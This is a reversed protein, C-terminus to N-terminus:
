YALLSRQLSLEKNAARFAQVANSRDSLVVASDQPSSQQRQTKVQCWQCRKEPCFKYKGCGNCPKEDEDTKYWCDKCLQELDGVGDDAKWDRFEFLGCGLCANEQSGPASM